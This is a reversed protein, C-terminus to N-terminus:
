VSPGGSSLLLTCHLIIIRQERVTGSHLGTVSAQIIEGEGNLGADSLPTDTLTASQVNPFAAANLMEMRYVPSVHLVEPRDALFSLISMLCAIRLEDSEEGEQGGAGKGGFLLHDIGALVM